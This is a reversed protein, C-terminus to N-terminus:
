PSSDTLSSAGRPVWAPSQCLYLTHAHACTHLYTNTYIGATHALIRTHVYTHMALPYTPRRNASHMYTQKYTNIFVPMLMGVLHTYVLLGRHTPVCTHTHAQPHSACLLIGFPRRDGLSMSSSRPPPPPDLQGSFTPFHRLSSSIPFSVKSFLLSVGELLLTQPELAPLDLDWSHPHPGQVM